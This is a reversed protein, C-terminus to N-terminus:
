RRREARYARMYERDCTQCRRGKDARPTLEHGYQCVTKRANKASPCEGRLVNEGRTVPEMHEVNLCNRVRCLHDIVLGPPIPGVQQEYVVRHMLVIQGNINAQAYGAKTCGKEWIICDTPGM